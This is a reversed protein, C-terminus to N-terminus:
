PSTTSSSQSTASSSAAASRPRYLTLEAIQAAVTGSGPELKTIWVLYYRFRRGRTGLSLKAAAPVSNRSALLVWGRSALSPTRSAPGQAISADYSRAGYVQLNFGPTPTQLELLNAAVGPSADLVLGVGPKNLAGNNYYYSTSWTTEPNGDIANGAGNADEQGSGFPNYASAAGQALNINQEGRQAQANGPPPTGRHAHRLTLFVVVGIVLLLAVLAVILRRPNRARLPVRDSTAAPLTRLVLTTEGRTSGSRAVELALAAELDALMSTADPYRDAVRKATSREVIAAVAASVEPRLRQVDPLEERVHKTAVALDSAGSFPVSGTLSEFLVIGLSYIDSQQGVHEGLAQEPSVYDTTGLVRGGPTLTDESSMRAIGFDSVKSGGEADILINQPKIDRHVIGAAHAAALARAVEIAFAVAEAVQLRGVRRIREALTEGEVYELVIFPTGEAEGADILTVINPHALRAVARAERRFRELRHEDDGIASGLLKLAVRRELVTDFARWVAANGGSGIAQELRYRGAFIHGTSTSILLITRARRARRAV